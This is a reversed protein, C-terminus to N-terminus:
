VMEDATKRFGAKRALKYKFGRRSDLTQNGIYKIRGNRRVNSLIAQWKILALYKGQESVEGDILILGKPIEFYTRKHQKFRGSRKL